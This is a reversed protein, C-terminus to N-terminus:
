VIQTTRGNHQAKPTEQATCAGSAIDFTTHHNSYRVLTGSTDREYEFWTGDSHEARVIGFEPHWTNVLWYGNVDKYSVLEGRANYTRGLPTNEM